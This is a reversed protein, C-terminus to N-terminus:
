RHRGPRRADSVERIYLRRHRQARDAGLQGQHRHCEGPNGQASEGLQQLHQGEQLGKHFHQREGPHRRLGRGGHRFGECLRQRRWLINQCRRRLLRERDRGHIAGARRDKQVAVFGFLCEDFEIQCVSFLEVRLRGASIFDASHRGAIDRDINATKQIKENRIRRMCSAFRRMATNRETPRLGGM